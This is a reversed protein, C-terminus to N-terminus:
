TKYDISIDKNQHLILYNINYICIKVRKYPLIFIFSMYYIYYIYIILTIAGMNGAYSNSTINSRKSNNEHDGDRDAYYVPSNDGSSCAEAVCTEIKQTASVIPEAASM